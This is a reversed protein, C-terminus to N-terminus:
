MEVMKDDVIDSHRKKMNVFRTYNFKSKRKQKNTKKQNM